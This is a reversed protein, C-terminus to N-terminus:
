RNVLTPNPRAHEGNRAMCTTLCCARCHPSISVSMSRTTVSMYTSSRAVLQSSLPSARLKTFFSESRTRDPPKEKFFHALLSTEANCSRGSSSRRPLPPEPLSQAEEPVTAAVM